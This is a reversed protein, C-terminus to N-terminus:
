ETKNNKKELNILRSYTNLMANYGDLIFSEVLQTSMEFTSKLKIQEDKDFDSLVYKPLDGKEFNNGIGIRIRPFQDCNLHYIISSLGNHGGDGGSKRLRFESFELNIDDVVILIDKFDIKYRTVSSLVAVGSLNVYTSPKILVFPINGLEGESYYYDFKSPKFELKKKEAFYDLFLFGVNHRNFIYKRGPNGIGIIARV